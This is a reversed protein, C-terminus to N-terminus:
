GAPQPGEASKVQGEADRTLKNVDLTLCDEVTDKKDWRYWNGSGYGCM